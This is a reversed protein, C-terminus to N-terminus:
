MGQSELEVILSSRDIVAACPEKFKLGRYEDREKGDAYGFYDGSSVDTSIVSQLTSKVRNLGTYLNIVL